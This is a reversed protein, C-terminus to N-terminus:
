EVYSSVFLDWYWRIPGGLEHKSAWVLPGYATKWWPKIADLPQPEPFPDPGVVFLVSEMTEDQYVATLRTPGSSLVYLVALVAIAIWFRRSRRAMWLIPGRRKTPEATPKRPNPLPAILAESPILTFRKAPM